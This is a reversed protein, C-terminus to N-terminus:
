RGLSGSMEDYTGSQHNHFMGHHYNGRQTPTYLYYDQKLVQTIQSM